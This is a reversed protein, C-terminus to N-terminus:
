FDRGTIIFAYGIGILLILSTASLMFITYYNNLYLYLIKLLILFIFIWVIIIVIIIININNNNYPQWEKEMNGISNFLDKINTCKINNDNNDCTFETNDDISKLESKNDVLRSFLKINNDNNNNNFNFPFYVIPLNQIPLFNINDSNNLYNQYDNSNGILYINESM